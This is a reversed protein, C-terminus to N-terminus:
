ITSRSLESLEAHSSFVISRCRGLDGAWFMGAFERVCDPGYRSYMKLIVETDSGSEFAESELELERRLEKFNYIEGNFVVTYRSNESAM